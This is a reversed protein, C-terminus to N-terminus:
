GPGLSPRQRQHFRPQWLPTAAGTNPNIQFFTGTGGAMNLILQNTDARYTMGGPYVGNSGILTAAGTSTNLSYFNGNTSDAYLKGTSSDYAMAFLDDIGHFGVLTAAGTQLNITYLNDNGRGPIWYATQSGPNYALDGFDGSNIGTNGVLSLAYTTPDISYLSNTADNIAYLTAAAWASSVSVCLTLVLVFFFRRM